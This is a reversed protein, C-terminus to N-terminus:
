QRTLALEVRLRNGVVECGELRPEVLLVFTALDSPLPRLIAAVRIRVVCTPLRGPGVSKSAAAGCSSAANRDATWHITSCCRATPRSIMLSPSSVFPPSQSDNASLRSPPKASRGHG